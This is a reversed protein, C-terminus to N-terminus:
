RAKPPFLSILVLLRPCPPPPFPSSFQQSCEFRSQTSCSRPVHCVAPPPVVRPFNVTLHGGPDEELVASSLSLFLRLRFTVSATKSGLVFRSCPRRRDKKPRTTSLLTRRVDFGDDIWGRRGGREPIFDHSDNLGRGRTSPSIPNLNLTLTAKM